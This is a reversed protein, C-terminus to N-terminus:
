DVAQLLERSPDPEIIEGRAKLRSVISRAEGEAIGGQSNASAIVDKLTIGDNGAARILDLVLVTRDRTSKPMSTMIMDIDRSGRDGTLTGLYYEILDIARRADQEEVWRSLRMRASAEALRIYGELQRATIPVSRDDGEGLQRISIYHSQIAEAAQDTLVPLIRKAHAVYKRVFEVPYHPKVSDTRELVASMGEEGRNALAGGRMHSALIHSSIDTDLDKRPIDQVPFILDFRSLLTDPLSLQSALPKGIIFRGYKPNAAALMSCRTSLTATIGAKNVSIQQQEMGEHLASRDEERMKDLEDVALLGMDALVMAGAELTWRGEGFDGDKTAAVTLGAASSSKGSAYVGRPALHSMYRVMASKAVGPDGVLLVHIDGRLRSGDDLVKPVGGFLQLLMGAKEMEHGKISPAISAILNQYLVPARAEREFELREEDTVDLEEFEQGQVEVSVARVETDMVTSKPKDAAKVMHPVGNIVVRNGATVAGAMEGTLWVTTRAPSTGRAGDLPEQCEVKQVDATATLEPVLRFRTNGSTRGCGDQEKYCELPESYLQEDMQHYIITRCRQCQFAATRVDNRVQTARTVLADFAVLRGLHQGRLERIALRADRPLHVVRVDISARGMDGHMLGRAAQAAARLCADPRELLEVALDSDARDITSFEVEISREDPYLDELDRVRDMLHHSLVEAWQSVMTGDIEECVPLAAIM